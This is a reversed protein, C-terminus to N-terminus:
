HLRELGRGSIAVAILLVAGSFFNGVGPSVGMLQLGKMGVALIIVGLVTGWPNPGDKIQTAGLFLAAVAPFLFAGATSDTAVGVKTALVLGAFAAMISSILLVLVQLRQTNIGALRAAVPNCGTAQLRRGLTTYELVYYTVSAILLVYIFPLPINGIVGRGFEVFSPDFDPQIANGNAIIETVGLAVTSVGLTAVLSNVSLKTVLLASVVGFLASASLTIVFIEVTGMAHREQLWSAFVMAFGAVQAISLDFIGAVLPLMVGLALLGTIASDGLTTQLTLPTLFIDPIVISFVVVMAALVWFGGFRRAFLQRWNRSRADPEPPRADALDTPSIRSITM